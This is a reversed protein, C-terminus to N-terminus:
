PLSSQFIPKTLCVSLKKPKKFIRYKELTMLTLLGSLKSYILLSTGLYSNIIHFNSKKM